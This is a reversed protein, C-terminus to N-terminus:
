RGTNTLRALALEALGRAQEPSHARADLMFDGKALVHVTDFSGVGGTTLYADDGLGALKEINDGIMPAWMEHPYMYIIAYDKTGEGRDITYTCDTAYTTTTAKASTRDPTSGLIEAVAGAPVVACVDFSSLDRPTASKAAGTQVAATQGEAAPAANDSDQDCGTLGGVLLGATLLANVLRLSCIPQYM